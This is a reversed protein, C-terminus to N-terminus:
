KGYRHKGGQNEVLRHIADMAATDRRCLGLFGYEQIASERNGASNTRYCHQEAQNEPFQGLEIGCLLTHRLFSDAATQGQGYSTHVLHPDPSFRQQFRLHNKGPGFAVTGALCSLRDGGDTPLSFVAVPRPRGRGRLFRALTHESQKDISM